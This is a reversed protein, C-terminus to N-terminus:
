NISCSSTISIPTCNPTSPRRYLLSPFFCWLDDYINWKTALCRLNVMLRFRFLFDHGIVTFDIFFRRGYIALRPETTTPLLNVFRKSRKSGTSYPFTWSMLKHQRMEWGRRWGQSGHRSKRDNQTMDAIASTFSRFDCSDPSCSSFCCLKHFILLSISKRHTKIEFLMEIAIRCCMFSAHMIVESLRGAHRGARVKTANRLKIDWGMTWTISYSNSLFSFFFLISSLFSKSVWSLPVIFLTSTSSTMSFWM